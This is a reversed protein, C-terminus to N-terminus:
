TPGGVTRPAALLVAKRLIAVEGLLRRNEAKLRNLQDNESCVHEHLRREAERRAEAARALQGELMKFRVRGVGELAHEHKNQVLLARLQQYTM